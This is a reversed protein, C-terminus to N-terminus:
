AVHLYLLYEKMESAYLMERGVKDSHESFRIFFFRAVLLLYM